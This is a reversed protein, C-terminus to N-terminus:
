PEHTRAIGRETTMRFADPSPHRGQLIQMKAIEILVGSGPAEAGSVKDKELAGLGQLCIGAQRYQFRIEEAGRASEPIAQMAGRVLPPITPTPVGAAM